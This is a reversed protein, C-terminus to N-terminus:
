KTAGLLEKGFGYYVSLYYDRHKLSNTAKADKAGNPYYSEITDDFVAGGEAETAEPNESLLKIIAQSFVTRFTNRKEPALNLESIAFAINEDTYGKKKALAVIAKVSLGLAIAQEFYKTIDLM